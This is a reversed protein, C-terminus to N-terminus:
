YNIILNSDVINISKFPIVITKKSIEAKSTYTVKPTKIIPDVIHGMKKIGRGNKISWIKNAIAWNSRGSSKGFNTIAQTKQKSHNPLKSIELLLKVEAESYPKFKEM